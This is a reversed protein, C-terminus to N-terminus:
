TRAPTPLVAFSYCPLPGTVTVAARDAHGRALDQAASRFTEADEAAVLFSANLVYEALEPGEQVDSAMTSLAVVAAGVADARRRLGAVVAEGLRLDADMGPSRRAHERAQRVQPDERVVAALGSEVPAVKVNMEVQGAVRDLAALYDGSAAALQERLREPDTVVTGFRTPLLPGAACLALQVNQHAQLDRRTARLRQPAEGVVVAVRGATLTRVPKSPQGVGRLDAPLAADARTVGYVYLTM